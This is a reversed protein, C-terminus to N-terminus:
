AGRRPVIIPKGDRAISYRLVGGGGGLFAAMMNGDAPAQVEYLHVVNRGNPSSLAAMESPSEAWSIACVSSLVCALAARM